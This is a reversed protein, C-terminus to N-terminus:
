LNIIFLIKLIILFSKDIVKNTKASAKFYMINKQKVFNDIEVQTVQWGYKDIKNGLLIM